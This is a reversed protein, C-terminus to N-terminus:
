IAQTPRGSTVSMQVPTDVYIPEKTDGDFLYLTEIDKRGKLYDVCVLQCEYVAEVITKGEGWCRPIGANDKAVVTKM